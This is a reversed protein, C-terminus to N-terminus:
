TREVHDMRYASPLPRAAYWDEIPVAQGNLYDRLAHPTLGLRHAVQKVSYKQHIKWCHKAHAVQRRNLKPKAAM